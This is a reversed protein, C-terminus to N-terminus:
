WGVAKSLAPTFGGLEQFLRHKVLAGATGQLLPNGSQGHRWLRCLDMHSMQNIQEQQAPTM